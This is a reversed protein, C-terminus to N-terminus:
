LDMGFKRDCRSALPPEELERFGASRYLAIAATMARATELEIRTWGANRAHDLALDLLRRGMGRGRMEPVLYMKRLECRMPDGPNPWVGCTGVIRGRGDELVWFEGGGRRYHVDLDALDIDTGADDPALDFEALISFVLERVPREDGSGAPRIVIAAALPDEGRTQEVTRPDPRRISM